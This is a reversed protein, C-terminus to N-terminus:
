LNGVRLRPRPGTAHRGCVSSSSSLPPVVASDPSGAATAALSSTGLPTTTSTSISTFCLQLLEGSVGLFDLGPPFPLRFSLVRPSLSQIPTRKQICAAGGFGRSKAAAPFLLCLFFISFALAKNLELNEKCFSCSLM